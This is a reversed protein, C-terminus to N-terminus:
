FVGRADREERRRRMESRLRRLYWYSASASISTVALASLLARMGNTVSGGKDSSEETGRKGERSSVYGVSLGVFVAVGVSRNREKRDEERVREVAENLSDDTVM